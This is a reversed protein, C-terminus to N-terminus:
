FGWQKLNPSGHNRVQVVGRRGRTEGVKVGDKVARHDQWSTLRITIGAALGCWRVGVSVSGFPIYKVVPLLSSGLAVPDILNM